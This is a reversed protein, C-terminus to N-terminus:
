DGRQHTARLFTFDYGERRFAVTLGFEDYGSLDYIAGDPGFERQYTRDPDTIIRERILDLELRLAPPLAERDEDYEPENKGRAPPV